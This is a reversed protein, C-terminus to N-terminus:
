KGNYIRYMQAADGWGTWGMAKCATEIDAKSPSGGKGTRAKHAKAVETVFKAWNDLSIDAAKAREWRKLAADSLYVTMAKERDAQSARASVLQTLYEGESDADSARVYGSFYQATENSLGAAILDDYRKTEAVMSTYFKFQGLLLAKQQASYSTHSLYTKFAEAKNTSSDDMDSIERYKDYIATWEEANIGAQAAAYMDDARSYSSDLLERGEASLKSYAGNRSFLEDLFSFDQAKNSLGFSKKIGLFDLPDDLAFVKDYDTEYEVDYEDALAAKREAVLYSKIESELEAQNAKNLTPIGLSELTADIDLGRLFDDEIKGYEYDVKAKGLTLAAEEGTQNAFDRMWRLAMADGIQGKALADGIAKGIQKEFGDGAMTLMLATAENRRGMNYAQLARETTFTAFQADSMKRISDILSLYDDEHRPNAVTLYDANYMFVSNLMNYANRLPVGSLSALDLAANRVTKATPNQVVKILSSVTNNVLNTVAENLAYFESTKDVKGHTIKSLVGTSADVLVAAIQDGFWVTGLSSEFLDLGIRKAVKGWDFNGDEDRYDKQKHLLLRAATSLFAFMTQAAIQGALTQHYKSKATKKEAATANEDAQVAKNEYWATILQNLNQTQQTRFMALAKVIDSKDRQYAARYQMQYAPQSHLAIMEFRRAVENFFEESNRDYGTEDAVWDGVAMMGRAVTRVDMKNIWNKMGQPVISLVKQSFASAKEADVMEPLNYGVQRATLVSSREGVGKALDSTTLTKTTHPTILYKALYKIPVEGAFDMFSPTQKIAVGPNLLLSSQALNGRLTSFFPNGSDRRGNLDDLYNRLWTANKRDLQAAAGSLTSGEANDPSFPKEMLELTDTLEAFGVYDSAMRIYRNMSETFGNLQIGGTNGTRQQLIRMDTLSRPGTANASSNLGDGAMSLSWYNKGKTALDIGLIKNSVSNVEGALYTMAEISADYMAKSISGEQLLEDRLADRLKVLDRQAAERDANLKRTAERKAFTKCKESARRVWEQADSDTELLTQNSIGNFSRGFRLKMEHKYANLAAGEYGAIERDYAEQYYSDWKSRDFFTVKEGQERAGHSHKEAPLTVGGNLVHQFGDRDELVKLMELAVNQSVEHDGIKTKAKVQGKTWKVAGAMDSAAHFFSNAKFSANRIHNVSSDVMNALKYMMTSTSKKFGGLMKFFVDPRLQDHMFSKVARSFGSGKNSLGNNKVESVAQRSDSISEVLRSMRTEFVSAFENVREHYATHAGGSNDSSTEYLSLAGKVADIMNRIDADEFYESGTIKKDCLQDYANMLDEIVATGDVVRQAADVVNDYAAKFREEEEALHKGQFMKDAFPTGLERLKAAMQELRAHAKGGFESVARERLQEATPPVQYDESARNEANTEASDTHPGGSVDYGQSKLLEIAKQVEADQDASMENLTETVDGPVNQNGAPNGIGNGAALESRVQMLIEGLHNEGKGNVTGWFTDGWNNEHILDTEGTDLLKQALEHNQSFKAYVIDHMLDLRVDNWDPRLNAKRGARRAEFGDMKTYRDQEASDTVKQAQFASEASRYTKGKFTFTSKFMNSLFYHEGRFRTVPESGPKSTPPQENNPEGAPKETEEEGMTFPLDDDDPKASQEAKPEAVPTTKAQSDNQNVLEYEFQWADDLNPILNKNAWEVSWGEKESWSRVTFSGDALKHLPVTVRVLVKNGNKDHFEVIDGVKLNKWYNINGHRGFRTTATRVGKQIAELTTKIGRSKVAENGLDGYSYNMAGSYKPKATQEAASLARNFETATPANKFADAGVVDNDILFQQVAKQLADVNVGKSASNGLTGGSLFAFFENAIKGAYDPNSKLVNKISVRLTKGDATLDIDPLGFTKKNSEYHSLALRDYVLQADSVLSRKKQTFKQFLSYSASNRAEGYKFYLKAHVAEHIATTMQGVRGAPHDALILITVSGDDEVIAAGNSLKGTRGRITTTDTGGPTVFLVRVNEGAIHHVAEEASRQSENSAQSVSCSRGWRKGAAKRTRETTAPEQRQFDRRFGGRGHGGADSGGSVRGAHTRGGGDSGNGNKQEGKTETAKATPKAATPEIATEAVPKFKVTWKTPSTQEVPDTIKVTVSEGNKGKGVLTIVDGKKLSKWRELDAKAKESANSRVTITQTGVTGNRVDGILNPNITFSNNKSRPEIIAPEAGKQFGENVKFFEGFRDVLFHKTEGNDFKVTANGNQVEVVTGPGLRKSEVRQGAEVTMATQSKARLPAVKHAETKGADPNKQWGEMERARALESTPVPRSPPAESEDRMTLKRPRAMPDAESKQAERGSMIQNVREAESEEANSQATVSERASMSRVIEGDLNIYYDQNPFIERLIALREEASMSAFEDEGKAFREVERADDFFTEALAEVDPSSYERRAKGENILSSVRDGHESETRDDGLHREAADAREQEEIAKEHKRQEELKLRREAENRREQAEERRREFERMEAYSTHKEGPKNNLVDSASRGTEEVGEPTLDDYEYGSSEAAEQRAQPRTGTGSDTVAEAEPLTRHPAEEEETAAPAQARTGTGSDTVPEIGPAFSVPSGITSSEGALVEPASGAFGLLFGLLAGYLTDGVTDADIYDVWNKSQTEAGSGSGQASGTAQAIRGIINDVARALSNAIPPIFEEAAEDLGNGFMRGFISEAFRRVTKNKFIRAKAKDIASDLFGKGYVGQSVESGGLILESLVEVGASWTASGLQSGFSAGENKSQTAKQGFVRTFMSFLGAAQASNAGLLPSIRGVTADFAMDVSTAWLDLLTSKVKGFATDTDIGIKADEVLQDGEEIIATALDHTAETANRQIEPAQEYAELQTRAFELASRTAAVSPDTEPDVGREQAYEIEYALEAELRAVETRKDETFTSMYQDRAGQGAEYMTRATGVLDGVTSELKGRLTSWMRSGASAAKMHNDLSQYRAYNRLYEETPQAGTMEMQANQAELWAGLESHERQADAYPMTLVDGNNYKSLDYVDEIKVEPAEYPEQMLRSLSGSLTIDRTYADRDMDGNELRYNEPNDLKAQLAAYERELAAGFTDQVTLGHEEAYARYVPSDTKFGRAELGRLHAIAEARDSSPQVQPQEQTQQTQQGAPKAHSALYDMLDSARSRIAAGIDEDPKKRQQVTNVQQPQVTSTSRLEKSQDQVSSKPQIGLSSWVNAMPDQRGTTPSTVSGTSMDAPQQEEKRKKSNVKDVYNNAANVAVGGLLDWFGAM